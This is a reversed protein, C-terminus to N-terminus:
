QKNNKRAHQKCNWVFKLQVSHNQKTWTFVNSVGKEMKQKRQEGLHAVQTSLPGERQLQEPDSVQAASDVYQRDEAFNRMQSQFEPLFSETM